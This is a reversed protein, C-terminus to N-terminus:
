ITLINEPDFLLSYQPKGSEDELKKHIGEPDIYEINKMFFIQDYKTHTYLTYSKKGLIKAEYLCSTDFGLAIESQLIDKIFSNRSIKIHSDRLLEKESRLEEEDKGQYRIYIKYGKEEAIGKLVSFLKVRVPAEAGMWDNSYRYGSFFTIIKKEPYEKIKEELFGKSFKPYGGVEIKEMNEYGSLLDYDEQSWLYLKDAFVPLCNTKPEYEISGALFAHAMCKTKIGAKQCALINFIDDYVQDFVCVYLRVKEKKLIEALRNIRENLVKELVDLQQFFATKNEPSNKGMYKDLLASTESLGKRVQSAYAFEDTSIANRIGSKLAQVSIKKNIPVCIDYKKKLQEGLNKFRIFVMPSALIKEKGSKKSTLFLLYYAMTKAFDSLGEDYKYSALIARTESDGYHIKCRIHRNLIKSSLPYAAYFDGGFLGDIIEKRQFYNLDAM